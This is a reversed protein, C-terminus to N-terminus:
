CTLKPLNGANTIDNETRGRVNFATEYRILSTEFLGMKLLPQYELSAEVFMVATGPASVIGNGARGMGEKLSNDNEGDGEEGYHSEQDLEGWCRQWNIFQGERAAKRGNHQLSSLVVRGNEEFDISQGISAAGAFVEYINADDIGGAVRGANDAVTGAIQSVRLHALAYNAVELGGLILLLLLPAAFAFEVFAVGRKDRALSIFCRFSHVWAM